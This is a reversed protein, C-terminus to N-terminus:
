PLYYLLSVSGLVQLHDDIRPILGILSFLRASRSARVNIVRVPTRTGAPRQVTLPAWPCRIVIYM